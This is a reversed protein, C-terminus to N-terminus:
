TKKSKKTTDCTKKSIIRQVSNLKMWNWRNSDIDIIKINIMVFGNGGPDEKSDDKRKVTIGLINYLTAPYLM